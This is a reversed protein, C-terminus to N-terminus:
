KEWRSEMICAESKLDVSLNVFRGAETMEEKLWEEAQAAFEKKVTILIEDHVTFLGRGIGAAVLRDHIRYFARSCCDSGTGQILANYAQRYDADWESRRKYAFRRRRGFPNKVPEGQNVMLDTKQKLAKCGKYAAWYKDLIKQAEQKSINLVLSLRHSTGHYQALFNVTKATTRDIGIEQATLDHKSIGENILRLLNKDKTFHAEIYVELSSYDASIFVYGPDPAYIGRVGGERPLQALNPNRHSIRGTATGNVNFEPYIRGNKMRELTGEIYSTYVKFAERYQCLLEAVPHLDKLAQLADYDISPKKTKQHYQVPLSLHEYLLRMVQKQSELSFEPKPVSAKGKQTKRKDIEKLWDEAEILEIQLPVLEFIKARTEEIVKKLAVGKETLYEVDIRVGSWETAMLARQLSHVHEVLSYPVGQSELDDLLLNKLELTYFVDKANYLDLEDEPAEEASKYKSWFDAKYNDRFFYPILDKLSHSANEDCLHHLLMTDVWKNSYLNIGKQRLFKLDFQANHFVLEVGASLAGLGGCAEGVLIYISDKHRVGVSLLRDEFRDLGTTEIDLAVTGTFSRCLESATEVDSVKQYNM